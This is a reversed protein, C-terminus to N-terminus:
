DLSVGMWPYLEHFLGGASVTIDLGLSGGSNGSIDRAAMGYGARQMHERGMPLFVWWHM